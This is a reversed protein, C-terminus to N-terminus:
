GALTADEKHRDTIYANHNLVGYWHSITLNMPMRGKRGEIFFTTTLENCVLMILHLVVLTSSSEITQDRALWIHHYVSVQHNDIKSCHQMKRLYTRKRKKMILSPFIWSVTVYGDTANASHLHECCSYRCCNPLFSLHSWDSATAM